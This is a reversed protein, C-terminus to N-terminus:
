ASDGAHFDRAHSEISCPIIELQSLPLRSIIPARHTSPKARSIVFSISVRGSIFKVLKSNGSSIPITLIIYAEDSQTEHIYKVQDSIM